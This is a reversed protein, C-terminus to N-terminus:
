DFRASHAIREALDCAETTTCTTVLWLGNVPGLRPDEDPLAKIWFELREQYTQGEFTSSSAYRVWSAPRGDVTGTFERCNPLNGCTQVGGTRGYHVDMIMGPGRIRAWATDVGQGPQIAYGPPLVATVAPLIRTEPAIQTRQGSISPTGNPVVATSACSGLLVAWFLPGLGTARTM